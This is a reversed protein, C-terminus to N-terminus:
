KRGALPVNGIVAIGLRKEVEEGSKVSTDFYYCIFLVVLSGAFGLIFYIVIDKIKLLNCASSQIEAKDIVSINKMDYLEVIEREFVSAITNAIDASKKADEYLVRIKIIETEDVSSVTINNSLESVTIDLNLQNIVEKLVRKSNIIERYTAVLKQNLVIDNQTIVGSDDSNDKVLLLTTEGSYLPTKFFVTYSIGIMVVIISVVFVIIIRKWFYMFLDKLNIEEMSRVVEGESFYQEM